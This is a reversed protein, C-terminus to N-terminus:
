PQKWGGPAGQPAPQKVTVGGKLINQIGELAKAQDRDYEKDSRRLRSILELSVKLYEDTDEQSLRTIKPPDVDENVDCDPPKRISKDKDGPKWGKPIWERPVRIPLSALYEAKKQGRFSDASGDYTVTEVREIAYHEDLPLIAEFGRRTFVMRHRVIKVFDNDSLDLCDDEYNMDFVELSRHRNSDDVAVDRRNRVYSHMPRVPRASGLAPHRFSTSGTNKPDQAGRQINNQQVHRLGNVFVDLGSFLMDIPIVAM